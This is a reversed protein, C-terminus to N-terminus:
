KWKFTVTYRVRGSGIFGTKINWGRRNSQVDLIEVKSGNDRVSREYDKTSELHISEIQGVPHALCDNCIDNRLIPKNWFSLRKGCVKCRDPQEVQPLMEDGQVHSVLM